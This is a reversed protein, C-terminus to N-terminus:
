KIILSKYFDDNDNLLKEIYFKIIKIFQRLFFINLFKLFFSNIWKNNDM